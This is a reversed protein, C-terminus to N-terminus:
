FQVWPGADPRALLRITRVILDNFDLFGRARKLWEYRAILWDAIVLAARTAELMGYLALRDCTAIIAQAAEEYRDLLDPIQNCLSKKFTNAGYRSGNAKLFATQLLELRRVPDREAFA